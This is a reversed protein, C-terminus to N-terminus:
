NTIQRFFSTFVIDTEVPFKLFHLNKQWIVSHVSDVKFKSLKSVCRIMQFASKLTFGVFSVYGRRWTSVKRSKLKNLSWFPRSVQIKRSARDSYGVFDHVSRQRELPLHPNSIRPNQRSISNQVSNQRPNQMPNQMPNQRPNQMLHSNFSQSKPMFNRSSIQLSHPDQPEPSPPPTSQISDNNSTTGLIAILISTKKVRGGM